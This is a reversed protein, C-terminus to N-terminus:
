DLHRLEFGGDNGELLGVDETWNSLVVLGGAEYDPFITYDRTGDEFSIIVGDAIVTIDPSSDDSVHNWNDWLYFQEREAPDESPTLSRNCNHSNIFCLVGADYARAILTPFPPDQIYLSANVTVTFQHPVAIEIAPKGRYTITLFENEERHIINEVDGDIIYFEFIARERMDDQLSAYEPYIERLQKEDIDV